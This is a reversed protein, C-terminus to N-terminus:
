ANYLFHTRVANLATSPSIAVGFVFFVFLFSPVTHMSYVYCFLTQQVTDKKVYYLFPLTYVDETGGKEKM